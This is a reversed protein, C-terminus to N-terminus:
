GKFAAEMQATDETGRYHVIKAGRFAFWHHLDMAVPRGTARVRARMRVVTLVDSDNAAYSLPTFEDTEM